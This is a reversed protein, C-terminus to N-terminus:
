PEWPGVLTRDGKEYAYRDEILNTKKDYTVIDIVQANFIERIKEGVLEYIGQIDLEKALGEQVSNIVSLEATRQETEKLLRNTEDFLPCKGPRCSMSNALTVLYGCMLIM